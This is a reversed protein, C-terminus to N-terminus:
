LVKRDPLRWSAFVGIGLLGSLDTIPPAQYAENPFTVLRNNASDITVGGSKYELVNTEFRSSGVFFVEADAYQQPLSIYIEPSNASGTVDTFDFSPAYHFVILRDVRVIQAQAASPVNAVMTGAQTLTPEYIHVDILSDLRVDRDILLKRADDWRGQEFLPIIREWDYPDIIGTM